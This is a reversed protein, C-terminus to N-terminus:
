PFRLTMVYQEWSSKFKKMDSVGLVTKLHEVASFAGIIAAAPAVLTDAGAFRRVSDSDPLPM